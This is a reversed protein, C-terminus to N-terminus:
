KQGLVAIGRAVQTALDRIRDLGTAPLAALVERALEDCIAHLKALDKRYEDLAGLAGTRQHLERNVRLLQDHERKLHDLEAQLNM